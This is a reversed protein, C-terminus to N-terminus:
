VGPTVPELGTDGVRVLPGSDVTSTGPPSVRGTALVEAANKGELRSPDARTRAADTGPITGTARLFDEERVTLYHRLAVAPTNGLWDCVVLMPITQMLGTERVGELQSVTTAM